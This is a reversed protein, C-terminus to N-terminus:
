HEESLRASAFEVREASPEALRTGWVPAASSSMPPSKQKTVPQCVLPRRSWAALLWDISHFTYPFMDSGRRQLRLAGASCEWVELYIITISSARRHNCGRERGQLRLLICRILKQAPRRRNGHCCKRGGRWLNCFGRLRARPERHRRRVDINTQSTWTSFVLAILLVAAVHGRSTKILTAGVKPKGAAADSVVSVHAVSAAPPTLATATSGPFVKAAAAVEEKGRFDFEFCKKFQIQALPGPSNHRVRVHAATSTEVRRHGRTVATQRTFPYYTEMVLSAEDQVRECPTEGRSLLMKAEALRGVPSSCM